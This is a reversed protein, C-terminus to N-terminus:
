TERVFYGLVVAILMSAPIVLFADQYARLSIGAHSNLIWGIAPQLLPSGILICMMNIYGMATGRMHSPTIDRMVAFPLLYVGSFFGLLLILVFMWPMSIGPVYAIICFIIGAILPWAIMLNRKIGIRGSLWGIFPAGLAAGIFIMSSADAAHGLTIGYRQMLYPICWFAGFAAVMGFTLGSFLGNIWAQPLMLMSFLDRWVHRNVADSQMSSENRVDDRVILWASIAMLLALAALILM